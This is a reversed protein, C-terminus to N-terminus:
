KGFKGSGLVKGAQLMSECLYMLLVFRSLMKMKSKSKISVQLISPRSNGKYGPIAKFEKRTGM